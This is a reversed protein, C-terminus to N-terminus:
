KMKHQKKQYHVIKRIKKRKQKNKDYKKFKWIFGM